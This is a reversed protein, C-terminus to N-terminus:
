PPNFVNWCQIDDRGVVLEGERAKNGIELKGRELKRGEGKGEGRGEGHKKISPFM